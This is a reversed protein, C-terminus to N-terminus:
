PLGNVCNSIAPLSLIKRGALAIIELPFTNTDEGSTGFGTATLYANLSKITPSSNLMSPNGTDDNRVSSQYTDVFEFTFIM